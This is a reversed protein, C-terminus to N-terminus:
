HAGIAVAPAPASIRKGSQSMFTPLFRDFAPPSKRPKPWRCNSSQRDCGIVTSGSSRTCTGDTPQMTLSPSGYRWGSCRSRRVITFAQRLAANIAARPFAEALFPERSRLRAVAQKFDSFTKPDALVADDGDAVRRLVAAVVDVDTAM